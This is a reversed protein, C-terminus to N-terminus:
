ISNNRQSEESEPKSWLAIEVIGISIKRNILFLLRCQQRLPTISEMTSAVLAQFDSAKPFASSQAGILLMQM